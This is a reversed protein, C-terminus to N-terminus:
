REGMVVAMVLNEFTSPDQICHIAVGAKLAWLAIEAPHRTQNGDGHAV